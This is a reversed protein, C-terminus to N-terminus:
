ARAGLTAPDGGHRRLEGGQMYLGARNGAEPQPALRGWEDTEM